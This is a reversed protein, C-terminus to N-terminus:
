NIRIYKDRRLNYSSISISKNSIALTDHTLAYITELSEILPMCGDPVLKITSDGKFVFSGNCYPIGDTALAYKGNSNFNITQVPSAPMTMWGTSKDAKVDYIEILQWEGLILPNIENRSKGCSTIFLIVIIVILSNFRSM